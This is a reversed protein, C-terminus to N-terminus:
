SSMLEDKCQYCVKFEDNLYATDFLTKVNCVCCRGAFVQRNNEGVQNVATRTAGPKYDPHNINDEPRCKPYTRQLKQHLNYIRFASSLVDPADNLSFSYDTNTM